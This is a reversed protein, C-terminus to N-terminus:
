ATSKVAIDRQPHEKVFSVRETIDGARLNIKFFLLM